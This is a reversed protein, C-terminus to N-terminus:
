AKEEQNWKPKLPAVAKQQRRSARGPREQRERQSVKQHFRRGKKLRTHGGKPDAKGDKKWLAMKAEM